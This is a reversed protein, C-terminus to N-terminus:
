TIFIFSVQRAKEGRDRRYSAFDDEKCSTCLSVTSINTASLGHSLLLDHNAKELDLSFLGDGNKRWLSNAFGNKAFASIVEEGVSYCQRCISPGMAALLDAQECGFHKMMFRVASGAVDCVTGRWGAHVAAAVNRKPDYLLVPVCDATRVFCVIGRSATVFADGEYIGSPSTGDLLHVRNGHKQNTKVSTWDKVGLYDLYGKLSVGRTGFGHCLGDFAALAQSQYLPGEKTELRNIM